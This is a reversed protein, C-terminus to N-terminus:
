PQRFKIKNKLTTSFSLGQSQLMKAEKALFLVIDVSGVNKTFNVGYNLVGDGNDVPSSIIGDRENSDLVNNNNTDETCINNALVRGGARDISIITIGDAATFRLTSSNVSLFTLPFINPQSYFASNAGFDIYRRLQKIEASDTYPCYVIVARWSVLNNADLHLYGNNMSGDEGAIAPNGRASAFWLGQTYQGNIPDVFTFEETNGSSAEVLDNFMEDMAKRANIYLDSKIDAIVSTSRASSLLAVLTFMIFVAMVSVILIEFLSIGKRSLLNRM